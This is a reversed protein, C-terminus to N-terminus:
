YNKVGLGSFAPVFFVGGSDEVSKAINCSEAPNSLFEMRLLWEMLSGCDNCSGEAMCVTEGQVQWAILPYIGTVSAHIDVGTNVDLFAGTGMTVKLKDPVFCCSAFLSSSQDSM